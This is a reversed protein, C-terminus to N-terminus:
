LSKRLTEFIDNEIDHSFKDFLEELKNEAEELKERILNRAQNEIYKDINNVITNFMEPELETGNVLLKVDYFSDKRAKDIVEGTLSTMLELHLWEKESLVEEFTIKM